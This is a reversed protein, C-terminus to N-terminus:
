GKAGYNFSTMHFCLVLKLARLSVSAWVLMLKKNETVSRM